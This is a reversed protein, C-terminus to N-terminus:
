KGQLRDKEHHARRISEPYKRGLEECKADQERTFRGGNDDYDDLYKMEKGAAKIDGRELARELKRIHKDNQSEISGGCSTMCFISLLLTSTIIVKKM